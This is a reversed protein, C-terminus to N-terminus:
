VIPMPERRPTTPTRAPWCASGDDAQPRTSRRTIFHHLGRRELWGTTSRIDVASQSGRPSLRRRSDHAVPQRCREISSQRRCQLRRPLWPRRGPDLYREYLLASIGVAMACAFLVVATGAVFQARQALWAWSKADRSETNCELATRARYRGNALFHREVRPLGSAARSRLDPQDIPSDRGVPSSDERRSEGCVPGRGIRRRGDPSALHVLRRVGEADLPDLQYRISVRQDLQRM